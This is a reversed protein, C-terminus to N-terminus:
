FNFILLDYYVRKKCQFVIESCYKFSGVGVCIVEVHVLQMSSFDVRPLKCANGYYGTIQLETTTLPISLISTNNLLQYHNM